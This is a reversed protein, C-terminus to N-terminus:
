KKKPGPPAGQEQRDASAADRSMWVFVAAGACVVVLLVGFFAALKQWGAAGQPPPTVARGPSMAPAVAQPQAM